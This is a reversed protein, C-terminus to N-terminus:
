IGSSHFDGHSGRVIVVMGVDHWPVCPGAYHTQWCPGEELCARRTLNAGAVSAQSRGRRHVLHIGLQVKQLSCKGAETLGGPRWHLRGHESFGARQTEPSVARGWREELERDCIGDINKTAKIAM